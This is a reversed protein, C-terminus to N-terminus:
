RQKLVVLTIDDYVKNTGIHQRLDSIINQRIEASTLHCHPTAAAILRELGYQEGFINEAETIGDTYLLVVDGPNLQVSTTAVFPSIEPDLGLPFGLDITDIIEVIPETGRPAGGVMPEGGGSTSSAERWVVVSEHQGSLTLTGGAYDLLALTMNKDSEMRVVNKYIARNLLDLFRVPATEGSELLTRVAMQAMIM